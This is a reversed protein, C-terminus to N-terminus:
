IAKDFWYEGYEPAERFGDPWAQLEGPGRLGNWILDVARTAPGAPIVEMQDAIFRQINHIGQKRAGFEAVSRERKIM